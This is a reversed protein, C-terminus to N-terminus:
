AGGRGRGTGAAGLAAHVLSRLRGCVGRPHTTTRRAGDDPANRARGLRAHRAHMSRRCGM